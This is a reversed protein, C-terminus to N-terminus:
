GFLRQAWYVQRSQGIFVLAMLLDDRTVPATAFSPPRTADPEQPPFTAVFTIPGGAPSTMVTSTSSMWTNEGTRVDGAGRLWSYKEPVRNLVGDNGQVVEVASESRGMVMTPKLHVRKDIVLFVFWGDSWDTAANPPPTWRLHGGVFAYGPSPLYALGDYFREREQGSTGVGLMDVTVSANIVDPDFPPRDHWWRVAAVGAVAMVVVAIAAAVRRRNM